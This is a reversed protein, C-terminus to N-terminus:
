WDDDIGRAGRAEEGRFLVQELAFEEELYFEPSLGWGAYITGFARLGQEPKATFRRGGACTAGPESQGHQESCRSVASHQVSARPKLQLPQWRERSLTHQAARQEARCDARRQDRARETNPASPLGLAAYREQAADWAPDALLAARLSALFVQLLSSTSLNHSWHTM